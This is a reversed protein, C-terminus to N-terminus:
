LEKIYTIEYPSYGCDHYFDGAAQNAALASVRVTAVEQQRLFGEVRAVLSTAVGHGRAEPDVYLDTIVGYRKFPEFLHRDADDEAELMAVVFGVAEGGHQAVFVCGGQANCCALLYDFHDGAMQRGPTRSNHLAGEHDQLRAMMDVVAARHGHSYNVVSM